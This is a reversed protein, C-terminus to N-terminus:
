LYGGSGPAWPPRASPSHIMAHAAGRNGKVPRLLEEVSTAQSLNPGLRRPWGRRVARSSINVTRSPLRDCLDLRVGLNKGVGHVDSQPAFRCLRREGSGALSGVAMQYARPGGAGVLGFRGCCRMEHDICFSM